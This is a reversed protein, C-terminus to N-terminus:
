LSRKGNRPSTPLSTSVSSNYAGRGTEPLPRSLPQFAPTIPGEERKPSLGPSLDPIRLIANM